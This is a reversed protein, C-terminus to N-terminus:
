WFIMPIWNSGALLITAFEQFSKHLNAYAIWSMMYAFGTWMSLMRVAIM